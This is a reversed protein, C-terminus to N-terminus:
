ARLTPSNEDDNKLLQERARVLYEGRAAEDLFLRPKLKTGMPLVPKFELEWDYGDQKCLEIARKLIAAEDVKRVMYAEAPRDFLAADGKM